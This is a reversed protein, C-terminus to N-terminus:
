SKAGVRYLELHAKTSRAISFPGAVFSDRITRREDTGGDRSGEIAALWSSPDDPDATQVGRVADAIFRVGPLPTSVVPTGVSLAELVVGPLGERVSTLIAVDAQALLTRVDDRRGLHHVRHELGFSATERRVLDSDSGSGGVFALHADHGSEVLAHLVRVALPRNKEPSPRGVHMVLLVGPSLSLERRLSDDQADDRRPLGNPIVRARRDRGWDSRFGDTLSSPSVGVIDTAFRGILWIMVARQARRRVSNEHGDGDSRFHAVRVPVRALWALLLLGGSFTAVHSDLVDPRHRRLARYFRVPFGVELPIPHVRSGSAEIREDLVGLDGSLTVYEFRVAHPAIADALEITRLEAGGINMTGFVHWVKVPDSM